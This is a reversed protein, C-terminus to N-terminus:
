NETESRKDTLLKLIEVIEGQRRGIQELRRYFEAQNHYFSSQASALDAGQM